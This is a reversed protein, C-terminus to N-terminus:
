KFNVRVTNAVQGDVTLKIDVEGLGALNSTLPFNLQDLGPLGQAGAFAPSIEVDGIKLSVNQLSSRGRIGSGFLILFVQDGEVSLDIPTSVFKGLTSDFGAVPEYSQQTGKIRLALASAVGAGDANATFLAPATRAVRILERFSESSAARVTVLAYGEATEPPILYNIQNPTVAFLPAYQQFPRDSSDQISVYAGGLQLPLPFTTAVFNGSALDKGFAVAISEKTFNSQAYSGASATALLGGNLQPTAYRRLTKWVFILSEDTDLRHTRFVILLDSTQYSVSRMVYTVGIELPSRNRYSFNNEVFGASARQQQERAGPEFLPPAFGSLWAVGPTENTVSEIPLDGLRTLFGFDAGAFGVSLNGRQLELDSGFGYPHEQTVFTYYAGGGRMFLVGDFNERPMLRSVGTGAQKLFASFADRDAAAPELFLREKQKLEVTLRKREEPNIESEVKAKLAIIEELLKSRDVIQANIGPAIPVILALLLILTVKCAPHVPVFPHKFREM